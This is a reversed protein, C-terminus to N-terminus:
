IEFKLMSLDDCHRNLVAVISQVPDVLFYGLVLVESVVVHDDVESDSGIARAEVELVCTLVDCIEADGVLAAVLGPVLADVWRKFDGM